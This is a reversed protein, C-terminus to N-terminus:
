SRHGDRRLAQDLVAELVEVRRDWSHERAAREGRAGLRQRLDDDASLVSVGDALASADGVPIVIGCDVQRVVEAQGATETVIVPVGAAMAEYLKLPSAGWRTRTNPSLSALSGALLAGVARYPVPGLYRVFPLRQAAEEVQERLVGDGAIVLQVDTPWGPHAAAALLHGVGEWEVLAGVFAVYRGEVPTEPARRPDFLAANVGNPIVDVRRAGAFGEVWAVLGVNPVIVVDATRLAHRSAAELLPRMRRSWPHATFFDDLTGNVEEVRVSRWWLRTAVAVPHHRVYLVEAGRAGVAARAQVIIFQWARQLHSPHRRGYSPRHVDVVWGQRRLGAVVERVHTAAGQWEDTSQLSLYALRRAPSSRQPDGRAPRAVGRGRRQVPRRLVPAQSGDRRLRTVADVLPAVLRLARRIPRGREQERFVRRMHDAAAAASRRNRDFREEACTDLRPVPRAPDSWTDLFRHGNERWARRRDPLHRASVKGVHDVLVREDFVVDLDNVWVKFALDADEGSAPTYEEGWGGLQRMINARLVCLVGSPPVEFPHLRWVATGPASRVTRANGAATLAPVAMGVADGQLSELLAEAWGVPVQADNNVFAVFTGAAVALGGNMGRAFGLNEDHLVVVDAAEEAYERAEHQSGNDVLVLEYPVTTGRRISEVCRRTHPLQDWALM